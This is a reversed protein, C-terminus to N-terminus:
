ILDLQVTQGAGIRFCSEVIKMEPCFLLFVNGIHSPLATRDPARLWLKRRGTKGESSRAKEFDIDKWRHERDGM